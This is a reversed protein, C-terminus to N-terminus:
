YISKKKVEQERRAESYINHTGHLQQLSNQAFSVMEIWNAHSKCMWAHMRHSFIPAWM